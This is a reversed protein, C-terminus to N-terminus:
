SLTFGKAGGGRKFPPFKKCGGMVITLVELEQTLVVEFSNTGGGGEAHSFSTRGGGGKEYPYFKAHGVGERETAGGGRGEGSWDRLAWRGM